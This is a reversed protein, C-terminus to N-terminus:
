LIKTGCVCIAPINPIQWSYRLRLADRFEEKNLVWGLSSIPLVTLWVGAGKEQALTISRKLREDSSGSKIDTIKRLLRVEKVNMCDRTLEAVQEFQYGDITSQQDIILKKLNETIKDSAQFEFDTCEVPNSIGLGGLRVPLSFLDRELESIQRGTM